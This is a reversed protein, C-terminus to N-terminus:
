MLKIKKDKYEMNAGDYEAYNWVMLIAIQSFCTEFM